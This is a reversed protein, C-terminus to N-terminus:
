IEMFNNLIVGSLVKCDMILLSVWYSIVYGYLTINQLQAISVFSINRHLDYHFTALSVTAM